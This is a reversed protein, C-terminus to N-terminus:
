FGTCHSVRIKVFLDFLADLFVPIKISQRIIFAFRELILIYGPEYLFKVDDELVAIHFLSVSDCKASSVACMPTGDEEGGQCIARHGDRDQVFELGVLNVVDDVMAFGFQKKHSVGDPFLQTCFLHGMQFADDVYRVVGQQHSPRFLDDVRAFVQVLQEAFAVGHVEALVVDRVIFSTRVFQGDDVVGRARCAM